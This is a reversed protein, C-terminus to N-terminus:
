CNGEHDVQKQLLSAERCYLQRSQLHAAKNRNIRM